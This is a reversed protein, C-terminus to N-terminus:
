EHDGDVPSLQAVHAEVEAAGDTVVVYVSVPAVALPHEEDAVTVTLTLGKAAVILPVGGTQIPSL